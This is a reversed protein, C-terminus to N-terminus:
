SFVPGKESFQIAGRHSCNGCTFRIKDDPGPATNGMFVLHLPHGCNPCKHTGGLDQLLLPVDNGDSKTVTQETQENAFAAIIYLTCGAIAVVLMTIGFIHWMYDVCADSISALLFSLGLGLFGGLTVGALLGAVAASLLLIAWETINTPRRPDLPFGKGHRLTEEPEPPVQESAIRPIEGPAPVTGFMIFCGGADTAQNPVVRYDELLAAARLEESAGAETLLAVVLEKDRAIDPDNVWLGCISGDQMRVLSSEPM